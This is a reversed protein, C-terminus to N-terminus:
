QVANPFPDSDWSLIKTRESLFAGSKKRNEGTEIGAFFATRKFFLVAKVAFM